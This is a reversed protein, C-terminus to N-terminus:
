KEYQSRFLTFMLFRRRTTNARDYPLKELITFPAGCNTCNTFSYHFRRNTPDFIDRMCDVCTAIDPMVLTRKAGHEESHRIEFDLSGAVDIFSYELSHISAHQPHEHNIRIVLRDLSDKSGEAELYVGETSDAVWGTLGLEPPLRYVFPRFGVGQVAGRIVIRIRADSSM